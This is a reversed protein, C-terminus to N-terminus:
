GPFLNIFREAFIKVADDYHHEVDKPSTQLLVSMQSALADANSPQFFLCNSKIQERHLPIDSLIIFKNLAKADEVVTSWGEFLSPQIVAISEKMLQLQDNRDIFGLFLIRADLQHDKVYKKLEGPYDPNRYDFEKGTLVLQVEPFENSLKEFARIVTVHDKHKWFQNTVIFYRKGVGYRTRLDAPDIQKYADSLISVFPLVVKKNVNQPYFKNFDDLANQSSFVVPIESDVIQQQAAKRDTIERPSFYGPLYHEQFDPIWCYFNKINSKDLELPAPYLNDVTVLPIRAKFFPKGSIKRCLKNVARKLFPLEGSFAFQKLYPYGIDHIDKLTSGPKHLITLEPKRSDDIRKLSRIINLIYYTGGIWNEEYQFVLM